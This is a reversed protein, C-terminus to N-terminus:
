DGVGAIVFDAKTKFESVAAEEVAHSASKKRNMMVMEMGYRDKLREALKLLLVDSNFKTSEVLGVRLGELEKPRPVFDIAEREPSTTPDFVQMSM